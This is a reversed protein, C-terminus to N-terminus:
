RTLRFSLCVWTSFIYESDVAKGSLVDEKSLITSDLGFENELIRTNEEGYVRIIDNGGVFVSKM